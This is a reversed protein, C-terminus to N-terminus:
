ASEPRAFRQIHTPGSTKLSAIAENLEYDVGTVIVLVSGAKVKTEYSENAREDVGWEQAGGLMGGLAAGLGVGVLPGVLIFPGLLTSVAIPTALAGGLIGGIGAGTATGVNGTAQECLKEIEALEPADTRSVFSVHDEGYGAKALVELGVRASSVNSFEAIVCQTSM